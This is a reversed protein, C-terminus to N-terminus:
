TTSCSFNSKGVLYKLLDVFYNSTMKVVFTYKKYLNNFTKFGISLEGSKGYIGSFRVFSSPKGLVIDLWYRDKNQRASVSLGQGYSIRIYIIFPYGILVRCASLLRTLGRYPM